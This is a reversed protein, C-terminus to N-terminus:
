KIYLIVKNFEVSGLYKKLIFSKATSLAGKPCTYVCKLCRICRRNPKGLKMANMPCVMDCIGCGNCKSTKFIKIILRSRLEPLLSAFPTKRRRYIKIQRCALIAEILEDPVIIERYGEFSYTHKAPIYAAAVVTGTVLKAAEYVANGPNAGGYTAVLAINDTRLEKLIKGFPKPIGQCHVPFVAVVCEFHIDTNFKESYVDFVEYNLKEGLTQAVRLSQGSCSFYIVANM